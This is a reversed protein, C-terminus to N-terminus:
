WTRILRQVLETGRETTLTGPDWRRILDIKVNTPSTLAYSKPLIIRCKSWKTVSRRVLPHVQIFPTRLGKWIPFDTLFKLFSKWEIFSRKEHWQKIIGSYLCTGCWLGKGLGVWGFWDNIYFLM